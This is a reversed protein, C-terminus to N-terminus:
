PGKVNKYETDCGCASVCFWVYLRHIRIYKTTAPHRRAAGPRARASACANPAACRPTFMKATKCESSGNASASTEPATPIRAILSATSTTTKTTSASASRRPTQTTTVTRREATTTAVLTEATTTAARAGRSGNAVSPSVATRRATATTTKTTSASASRRPTQTGM